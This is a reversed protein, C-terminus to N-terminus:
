EAPVPSKEGACGATWVGAAVADCRPRYFREKDAAQYRRHLHPLNDIM